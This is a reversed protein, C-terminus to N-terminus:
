EKENVVTKNTKKKLQIWGDMWGNAKSGSIQYGSPIFAKALADKQFPVM